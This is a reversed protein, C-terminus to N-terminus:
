TQEGTSPFIDEAVEMQTHAGEFVYDSLINKEREWINGDSGM